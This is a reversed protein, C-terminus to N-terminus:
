FLVPHWLMIQFFWERDSTSTNWKLLLKRRLMQNLHKVTRLLCKLKANCSSIPALVLIGYLACEENFQLHLLRWRHIFGKLRMNELRIQFLFENQDTSSTSNFIETTYVVPSHIKVFIECKLHFNWNWLNSPANNPNSYQCSKCFEEHM